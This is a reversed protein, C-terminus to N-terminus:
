ADGSLQGAILQLSEANKKMVALFDGTSPRNGCPNVVVSDLGLARLRDISQQAPEDEWIMWAAPHESLIEGLEAWQAESPVEDPEWKVSRLNLGYRRALYQYVPHSALLPRDPDARTIQGIRRDLKTLDGQLAHLNQAIQDKAEPRKRTLAQAIADAQQAAQDLDLWTTFATGGHSHEGGPGHSHSVGGTERIYQDKFGRSTDVLRSRPLSVKSTWKAYDAGNLLILDAGQYAVITEADPMWFAPDVDPPAPFTVIALDGAIREAFYALPYNVTYIRLREEAFAWQSAGVLLLALSLFLGAARRMKQM